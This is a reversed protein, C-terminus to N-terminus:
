HLTNAQRFHLSEDDNSIVIKQWGPIWFMWTEQTTRLPFFYEIQRFFLLSLEIRIVSNSMGINEVTESKEYKKITTKVLTTQKLVLFMRQYYHFSFVVVKRRTQSERRSKSWWIKRRILIRNKFQLFKSFTICSGPGIKFFNEQFIRFNKYIFNELIAWTSEWIKFYTPSFILTYKLSDLDLVVVMTSRGMQLACFFCYNSYVRRKKVDFFIKKGGFRVLSISRKYVIVM